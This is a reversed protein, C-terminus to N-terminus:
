NKRLETLLDEKKNEILLVEIEGLIIAISQQIEDIQKAM